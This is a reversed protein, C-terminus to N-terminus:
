RCSELKSIDKAKAIFDVSMATMMDVNWKAATLADLQFCDHHEQNQESCSHREDIGSVAYHHESGVIPREDFGHAFETM